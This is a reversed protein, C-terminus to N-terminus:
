ALQVWSWWPVICVEWGCQRLAQQRVVEHGLLRFPRLRTYRDPTILLVAVRAGGVQVAVDIMPGEEWGSQLPSCALGMGLADLEDCLEICWGSHLEQRQARPMAAFWREVFDGQQQLREESQRWSSSAGGGAQAQSRVSVIGAVADVVAQAAPAVGLVAAGGTSGSGGGRVRGDAAWGAAVGAAAGAAGSGSVAHQEQAAAASCADGYLWDEGSSVEAAAALDAERV